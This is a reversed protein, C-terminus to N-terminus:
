RRLVGAGLIALIETVLQETPIPRGRLLAQYIPEKLMGLLCLATLEMDGDRIIGLAQGRLLARELRSAAGGYFDRLVESAEADIGAADTFLIRASDGQAQMADVLAQVNEFVQPPIPQTVDIPCVSSTVDEMIEALVADFIARKSDFYNYFTGRAVGAADIIDSVGAGHYGLRAFVVRAAALLQARRAEPDLPLARAILPERPSGVLGRRGSVRM